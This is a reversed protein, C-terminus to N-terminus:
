PIHQCLSILSCPLPPPPPFTCLPLCPSSCFLPTSTESSPCYRLQTKGSRDPEVRTHGCLWCNHAGWKWSLNDTSLISLIHDLALASLVCTVEKTPIIAWHPAGSRGESRVRVTPTERKDKEEFLRAHSHIHTYTKTGMHGFFVQSEAM